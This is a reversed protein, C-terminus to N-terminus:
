NSLAGVIGIEGLGKIGLPSIIEDAEDVFIVDIAHVDANVPVHYEAIDANIVRGFHHDVLTEEHLARGAQPGADKGLEARNASKTTASILGVVLDGIALQVRVGYTM